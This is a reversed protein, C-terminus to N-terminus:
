AGREPLAAARLAAIEALMDDVMAGVIAEGKAATAFTADGYIGTPSYIGGGGAEPSLRGSGPHGDRAALSMDVSQPELHLMMSTEIEDAHSGFAQQQLRRVVASGAREVRSFRLLIGRGALVAAAPELARVTSVGTNLVYFRCPGFAALSDVVDVVLDRATELRLSTSGAYAVFAPYYHYALTPAVVVETKEAVRRALHEALRRDNDLKLHPGHEKAAAGLPLLVLAQPTLWRRAEMWSM